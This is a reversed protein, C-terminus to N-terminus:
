QVFCFLKKNKWYCVTSCLSPNKQLFALEIVNKTPMIKGNFSFPANFKSSFKLSLHYTRSWAVRRFIFGSLDLPMASLKFTASDISNHNWVTTLNPLLLLLAAVALRTFHTCGDGSKTAHYKLRQNSTNSPTLLLRYHQQAPRRWQDTDM